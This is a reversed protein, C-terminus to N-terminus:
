QRPYVKFNRMGPFLTYSTVNGISAHAGDFYANVGSPCYFPDVKLDHFVLLELASVRQELEVYKDGAQHQDIDSFAADIDALAIEYTQTVLGAGCEDGAPADIADGSGTRSIGCFKRTLQERALSIPYTLYYGVSHNCIPEGNMPETITCGGTTDAKGSNRIATGIDHHPILFKPKKWNMWLVPCVAFRNKGPGDYYTNVTLQLFRGKTERSGEGNEVDIGLAANFKLDAGSLNDTPCPNIGACSGEACDMQNEYMMASYPFRFASCERIELMAILDNFDGDPPAYLDEWELRVNEPLVQYSRLYDGNNPNAAWTSSRIFDTDRTRPDKDVLLRTQVIETQGALVSKLDMSAPPHCYCSIEGAYANPDQGCGGAAGAWCDGTYKLCSPTGKDIGCVAAGAPKDFVLASAYAGKSGLFHARLKVDNCSNAVVVLNGDSGEYATTDTCTQANAVAPIAIVVAAAM